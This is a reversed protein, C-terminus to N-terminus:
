KGCRGMYSMGIYEVNETGWLNHTKGNQSTAVHASELETHM